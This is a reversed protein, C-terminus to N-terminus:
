KKGSPPPKASSKSESQNWEGGAKWAIWREVSESDFRYDYGVRFYPIEGRQIMRYLTSRNIRLFAAVEKVTLMQAM